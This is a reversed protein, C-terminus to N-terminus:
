TITSRPGINQKCLLLSLVLIRNAISHASYWHETHMITHRPDINQELLLLVLVLKQKLLLPGLVFIRITFHISIKFTPRTGITQKRLLLGLM